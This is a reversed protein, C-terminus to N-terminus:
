YEIIFAVLKNIYMLYFCKKKIVHPGRLLLTKLPQEPQEQQSSPKLRVIMIIDHKLYQSRILLNVNALINNNYQTSGM